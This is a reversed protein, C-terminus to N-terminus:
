DGLELAFIIELGNGFAWALPGTRFSLADYRHVRRAGVADFMAQWQADSLYDGTTSAGFRRNGLVDLFALKWRDLTGRSLHDKIVVTGRTVRCVERLVALQDGTHHLVNSLLAIDFSRDAFPLHRGDFRVMPIRGTRWREDRVFTEVGVVRTEPRYTHFVSGLTGDGAGVDIVTCPGREPLLRALYQTLQLRYYPYRSVDGYHRALVDDAPLWAPRQALM